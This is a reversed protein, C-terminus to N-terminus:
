HGAVEARLLAFGDALAAATSGSSPGELWGVIAQRLVAHSVTALLRCGADPQDLGRRRAVAAAMHGIHEADNAQSRGRLTISSAIAQEYLM